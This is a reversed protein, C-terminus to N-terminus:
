TLLTQTHKLLFIQHNCLLFPTEQSFNNMDDGNQEVTTDQSEEMNDVSLSDPTQRENILKSLFKVRIRSVHLIHRAGLLALLPCISNLKANLPNLKDSYVYKRAKSSGADSKKAKKQQMVKCLLRPHKGM